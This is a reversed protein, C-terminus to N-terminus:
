PTLSFFAGEDAEGILLLPAPDDVAVYLGIWGQGVGSQLLQMDFAPELCCPSDMMDSYNIIRNNTVSSAYGRRTELVGKDEGTYAFEVLITVFEFGEPPAENFSNASKIQALADAGRVVELVTLDFEIEDGNNDIALGHPTGIPVPNARVGVIPADPTATPMPTPRPTVTVIVQKTVEVLRTVEIEVERTVEVVSTVPVEVVVTEQVTVVEAESAGSGCASLFSCLLLPLLIFFV